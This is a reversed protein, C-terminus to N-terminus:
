TTTILWREVQDRADEILTRRDLENLVPAFSGDLSAEAEDLLKDPMTIPRDYGRKFRSAHGLEHALCALVSMSCRPSVGTGPYVDAGLYVRNNAQAFHTNSSHTSARTTDLTCVDDGGLVEWVLVCYDIQKPSLGNQNRRDLMM